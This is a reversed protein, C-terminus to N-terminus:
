SLDIGKEQLKELRVKVDESLQLPMMQGPLAGEHRLSREDRVLTELAKKPLLQVQQAWFAENEATVVSQIRVLKNISVEGNELLAKLTPKDAFRKELNLATSVQEESLGALKFAFEFMSDFGKTAYLGRKEVEPLLGIFRQRWQIANRGYFRAKEYLEQDTM